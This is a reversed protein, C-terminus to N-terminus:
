HGPGFLGQFQPLRLLIRPPRGREMAPDIAGGANMRICIGGTNPTPESIVVGAPSFGPGVIGVIVVRSSNRSSRVFAHTAAEAAAARVKANM